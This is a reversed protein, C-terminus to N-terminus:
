LEENVAASDIGAKASDEAPLGLASQLRAIEIPYEDFLSALSLATYPGRSFKNGISVITVDSNLLHGFVSNTGHWWGTHFTLKRGNDYVKMRFGIGYNNIGPKENSYPTFVISMLEPKLFDESFMAKSFNYLDRPTTYVNKDGYILDLRDYPHVKPGRNYFSKAATELKKETLIYSHKMKLPEFVMQKMAEPFPTATIKEVILALLAYNTNCYMFGSDPARSAEPKYKLLMNLVDTNTIFQKSLEPAAPDIKDIFYEYKPLGSRQTLLNLVTIGPYPFNPFFKTLDDQLSLKEAEALKMVAMATISKSISAVHLPTTSTIPERLSDQAFGRYGEYLIKDGKAILFGGWLDGGEWVTRYYQNIVAMISDENTIRGDKKRFVDKLNVNSFNPLEPQADPKEIPEKKCSALVLSLSLILLLLKIKM